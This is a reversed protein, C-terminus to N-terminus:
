LGAAGAGRVADVIAFDFRRHRPLHRRDLDLFALLDLILIDSTMGGPRPIYARLRVPRREQRDIHESEATAAASSQGVAM